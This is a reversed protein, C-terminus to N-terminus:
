HIITFQNQQPPISPSILINKYNQPCDQQYIHHQQQMQQFQLPDYHIENVITNGTHQVTNPSKERMPTLLASESLMEIPRFDNSHHEYQYSSYPYPTIKPYKQNGPHHHHNYHHNLRNMEMSCDKQSEDGPFIAFLNASASSERNINASTMNPGNLIFYPQPSLVANKYTALSNIESQFSFQNQLSQSINDNNGPLLHQLFGPVIKQRGTKGKARRNQFWVQVSRSTMGLRAALSLRVSASPMPDSEFTQQLVDLQYPSTRTRKKKSEANPDEKFPDKSVKLTSKSKLVDNNKIMDNNINETGKYNDHTMHCTMQYRKKFLNNQDIFLEKLNPKGFIFTDM